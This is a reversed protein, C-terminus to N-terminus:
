PCSTTQTCSFDVSTGVYNLGQGRLKGSTVKGDLVTGFDAVCEFTNATADYSPSKFSGKTDCGCGYHTSKIVLDFNSSVGGTEFEVCYTVPSEDSFEFDCNYFNGVLKDQCTGGAEVFSSNALLFTVVAFSMLIALFSASRRMKREEGRQTTGPIANPCRQTLGFYSVRRKCKPCKLQM